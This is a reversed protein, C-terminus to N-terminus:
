QVTLVAKRSVVTGHRNSVVVDYVGADEPRINWVAFIRNTAGAVPQGGLRWQVSQPWAGGTEIRFHTKTGRSACRGIPELNLVPRGDGLVAVGFNGCYAADIVNSTGIRVLGDGARQIPYPVNKFTRPNLRSPDENWVAIRGDAEVCAFGGGGAALKVGRASFRRPPGNTTYDWALIDGSDCLGYMWSETLRVSRLRRLSEPLELFRRAAYNWVFVQRDACLVALNRLDGSIDVADEVRAPLAGKAGRSDFLSGDARLGAFGTNSIEAAVLNTAGEPPDFFQGMGKYMFARGEANLALAINATFKSTMINTLRPPGSGFACVNDRSWKGEVDYHADWNTVWGDVLCVSM